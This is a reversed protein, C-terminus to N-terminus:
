QRDKEVKDENEPPILGGSFDVVQAAIHGEIILRMYESITMAKSAALAEIKDRTVRNVSVAVTSDLYEKGASAERAKITAIRRLRKLEARVEELERHIAPSVAGAKAGEISQIMLAREKEELESIKEEHTM